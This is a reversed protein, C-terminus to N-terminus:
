SVASWSIWVRERCSARGIKSRLLPTCRMASCTSSSTPLWSITTFFTPGCTARTGPTLPALDSSCVDSSWDRLSSTHRRRSSFFSADALPHHAGDVEAIVREDHVARRDLDEEEHYRRGRFGCEKGVRREESRAGSFRRAVCQAARPHAPRCGPFRPSSRRAAPRARAPRLRRWIPLACTQVGTVYLARIGDEALFFLRM